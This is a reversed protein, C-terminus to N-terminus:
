GSHDSVEGCRGSHTRRVGDIHSRLEEDTFAPLRLFWRFFVPALLAETAPEARPFGSVAVLQAVRSFQPDFLRTRFQRAIEEDTQISSALARLLSARPQAM